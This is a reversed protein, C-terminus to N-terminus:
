DQIYETNSILCFEARQLERGLYNAHDLRSVPPNEHEIISVSVSKATRGRFTRNPLRVFGKTCPIPKGTSPDCALGDKNILNTYHEAIVENTSKDVKIIFYGQPDLDIWRQSLKDDLVADARHLSHVVTFAHPKCHQRRAQQQMYPQCGVLLMRKWTHRSKIWNSLLRDTLQTSFVLCCPRPYPVLHRHPSLLPLQWLLYNSSM